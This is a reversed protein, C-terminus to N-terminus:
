HQSIFHSGWYLMVKIAVASQSITRGMRKSGSCAEMEALWGEVQECIESRKLYFHRRVVQLMM